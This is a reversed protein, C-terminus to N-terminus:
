LHRGHPSREIYTIPLLAIDFTPDDVDIVILFLGNTGRAGCIVGYGDCDGSQWPQNEFETQSQPSAHWQGWETLPRKGLSALVPVGLNHYRAARTKIDSIQTQMKPT